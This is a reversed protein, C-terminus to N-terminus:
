LLWGALCASDSDSQRGRLPAQMYVAQISSGLGAWPSTAGVVV